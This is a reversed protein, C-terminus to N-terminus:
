NNFQNQTNHQPFFSYNFPNYFQSSTQQINDTNKENSQQFASPISPPDYTSPSINKTNRLTPRTPSLVNVSINHNSTTNQTEEQTSDDPHPPFNFTINRNTNTDEYFQPNNQSTNLNPQPNLDPQPINPRPSVTRTPDVVLRIHTSTENQSANRASTTSEPYKVKM